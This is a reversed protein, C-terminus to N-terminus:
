GNKVEKMWEIDGPEAVTSYHPNPNKALFIIVSIIARVVNVFEAPVNGLLALVKAFISAQGGIWKNETIIKAIATQYEGVPGEPCDAFMDGKHANEAWKSEIITGTTVFDRDMIGSSTKALPKIAWPALKGKERRPNGIALGRRFDKLRFHCRGNPNIVEKEIFDSIIMAGQSFGAVGWPVGPRFDWLVKPGNQNAPNVPPGEIWNSLFMEVLAEVGSKNDFPLATSNYWVPKWWCLGLNQVTEATFAAPGFFMDSMHGEVTFIIPKALLPRPRFGSAYQTELDLVGRIFKGPVLKKADVLKDQMIVLADYFQQDFINTDDLHGMYSKYMRRAFAKFDRVKFDVVSHDGLGWGVWVGNIYM